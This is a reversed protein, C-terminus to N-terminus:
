GQGLILWHAARLAFDRLRKAGQPSSMQKLVRSYNFFSKVDSAPAKIRRKSPPFPLEGVEQQEKARRLWLHSRQFPHGRQDQTHIRVAAQEVEQPIRRAERTPFWISRAGVGSLNTRM